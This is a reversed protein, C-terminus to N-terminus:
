KKKKLCFVAYSIKVHSSNLRTSKRDLDERHVQAGHEPHALPQDLRAPALAPHYHVDTGDLGEHGELVVEGSVAHGLRTHDGQRPRQRALVGSVAEPDVGNDRAPNESRAGFLDGPVYQPTLQAEDLDTVVEHLPKRRAAHALWVLDSPHDQEERRAQRAVHVTGDHRHVAAEEGVSASPPGIAPANERRGTSEDDRGLNPGHSSYLYALISVGKLKLSPVVSSRNTQTAAM